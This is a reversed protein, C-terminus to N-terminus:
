EEPDMKYGTFDCSGFAKRFRSVRFVRCVRFM